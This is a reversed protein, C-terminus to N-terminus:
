KSRRNTFKKELQPFISIIEGRWKYYTKLSIQLQCIIEPVSKTSTHIEVILDIIKDRYRKRFFLPQRKLTYTKECDFCYIRKSPYKSHGKIKNSNCYPCCEQQNVTKKSYNKLKQDIHHLAKVLIKRIHRLTTEDGSNKYKELVAEIDDSNLMM